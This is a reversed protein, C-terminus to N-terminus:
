YIEGLFPTPLASQSPSNRTSFRCQSSHGRRGRLEKEPHRRDQGLHQAQGRGEEQEATGSVQFVLVEEGDAGGEAGRRLDKRVRHLDEQANAALDPEAGGQQAGHQDQRGPLHDQGREQGHRVLMPSM